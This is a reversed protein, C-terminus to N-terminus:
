KKKVKILHPNKIGLASYTETDLISKKLEYLGTCAKDLYKVISNIMKIDKEDYLATCNNLAFEIDVCIDDVAINHQTNEKSYDKFHIDENKDDDSENDMALIQQLLQLQAYISQIYSMVEKSNMQNFKSIAMNNDYLRNFQRKLMQAPVNFNTKENM